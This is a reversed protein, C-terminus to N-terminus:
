LIVGRIIEVTVLLKGLIHFAGYRCICRVFGQLEDCVFAQGPISVQGKAETAWISLTEIEVPVYADRFSRGIWSHRAIVGLWSISDITYGRLVYSSQLSDFYAPSSLRVCSAAESRRHYARIGSLGRFSEGYLLGRDTFKKYWLGATTQQM